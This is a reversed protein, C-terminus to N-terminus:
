RRRDKEVLGKVHKFWLLGFGLNPGVNQDHVKSSQIPPLSFDRLHSWSFRLTGMQKGADTGVQLGESVRCAAVSFFIHVDCSPCSFQM